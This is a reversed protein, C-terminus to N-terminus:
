KTFNLVAFEGHYKKAAKDYARAADIENQFLGFYKNQGNVRIAACWKRQGAHYSVGKYMSSTNVAMKRRNRANQAPTAPRLNAKRNDLGNNNIHDTCMGKPPPLIYRHMWVIQGKTREPGKARRVAYLMQRTRQLHWKHRSLREYDDPDVIAYKGQTLPIRRFPYGYRLRRYALILSVAFRELWSPIRIRIVLPL